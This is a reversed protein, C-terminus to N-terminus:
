EGTQPIVEFWLPNKNKPNYNVTIEEGKKINKIATFDIVSERARLKYKANPTYSHNYISGFGLTLALHTKFYYFYTVLISGNLNAPDEEPIKIIPCTEIIEGRKINARAFVGRGAKPVKSKSVYVKDSSLIKNV